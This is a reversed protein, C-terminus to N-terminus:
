EMFGLKSTLNSFNLQGNNILKKAKANADIINVIHGTNIIADDNVTPVKGYKWTSSDSWNGTQKSGSLCSTSVFTTSLAPPTSARIVTNLFTMAPREAGSCPDMIYAANTSRWHGSRFGWLTIGIVAPHNWYVNFIRQYESAQFADKDAQTGTTVRNGAADLSVDGDVDFETVMIPFGKAALTNLNATLNATNATYAAPLGPGYVQTGFTHTQMGVVDVLNDDKLLQVITTYDAMALPTNEIAYENIMLKTECGFYQRALKFANVIWDYTGATTGLETNLSKLANVYDGSGADGTNDAGPFGYSPHPNTTNNPPDNLTENFVEIYELKARANTSGDYHNAVAQMWAKIKAVKQVDTMPKLWLPQQSGWLLVHYRFPFNNVKAYERAADAATFNYVGQTGEVDGWKGSNEPAVQNFYKDANLIQSSSYICGLFKNKGTAIPTQNSPPAFLTGGCEGFSADDLFYTNVNKGLDLVVKTSTTNPKATFIYTFQQWETGVDYLGSYNEGNTSTTSFQINTGGNTSKAWIKFVYSANANTPISTSILQVSWPQGANPRGPVVNAKLGRVGNHFEGATTTQVLYSGGNQKTWNTFDDGTGIEFDPNLLVPPLPTVGFETDDIFYTNANQGINIVIETLASTANFTWSYQTWTDSIQKSALGYNQNSGIFANTTLKIESPTINSATKAWMKFTYSTNPITTFGTSVLQAAYYQGSSAVVAKVGRNGKHFEGVTTTQTFTASGNKVWDDFNNMAGLEFDPNQLTAPPPTVGFETDDIFYTNADKGINIVLETMTSSANFTWTYQTWTTSIQKFELGYNQNSGIIANTTLKIESPTVNSSTKAWMKFTYSTGITTAIPSTILQSSYYQGSSAVVAKVGRSGKHFEGATTTQSFTAAGNKVWDEFNNGTGIEFDPNQLGVPNAVLELDDVFYTNANQGLNLAVDTMATAATFTWSYQTWTDSIQKSALNYNQNNGILENTTLKIESPTVNNATKAWMRFTYTRGITTAFSASILQVSWSNPANGQTGTVIVKLGRVGKHFEGATTTQVFSSQGNQKTWDAFDDGSGEEFDANQLPVMNGVTLEMDDIFYTNVNKGLDLVMKTTSKMAVFTWTLQTWGTTVDYFGPSYDATPDPYPNTSFRIVGTGAATAKVWLKFTYSTGIVTPVADAVMQVSWPEPANGQTGTVVAKLARSGSRFEGASTTQFLSSGGNPKSWNTFADGTGLEFGHNPILNQANTSFLVAFYLFCALCLKSM